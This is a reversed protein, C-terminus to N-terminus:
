QVYLFEPQMLVAWLVDAIVPPAPPGQGLLELAAAQEPGTPSRTLAAAYIWDVLEANHNWSRQSIKEAGKALANALTEGNSLDIAELTTLEEPRMSVIQDRNPRGLARMLFDSKMLSARVMRANGTLGRALMAPGQEELMASWSGASQVEIAPAWDTPLTGLRGEKGAPVTPSFEWDAARSVLSAVKGDTLKAEAQFFLGAPNPTSGGNTAVVVIQNDGAKLADALTVTSLPKWQKSETIKRGNIFLVFENDCSLIAAGTAVAADLKWTTRLLISEGAPPAKGERASAGWIWTRSLRNRAAAIAEPDPKGRLVPADMKAPATGTIQWIADVFQEASLRRQRPGQFVYPTQNAAVVEARSQYIRSTAIRALTHKLNYGNKQFDDALYDLLDASWPETQMADLPHVIGHGMLRHWLRNVITRTFRGNEPQTMLAALQQLRETRPAAPNVQGLEPFLWSAVAERGVPKDCRHVQLPAGAYIAALGYAEDLKWRDIFSDHCSACKLNIGLFSQGVSQAFQIEVTQGASVEGRWKIGDIFGQSQDNVPALLERAFQDFSKNRILADYLWGSIQKRGGTIFGTGGYDNRLLDNWFTLWHETYDTDRSLLDEVLRERKDPRTDSLFASVEEPTPLLGILDLSARRLFTGDGALPPHAVQHQALYADVIRDVPQEHGDIAPPLSVQRPKLPPEYAPAKFAFGEEWPLGGTVWERLRAVEAVTLRDGKPPMRVDPDDSSIVELLLSKEPTKPDIAPGNESGKLLAARDNMSFGGKRKDGMHCEACRQRLIPVIEHSFDAASAFSVPAVALICVSVILRM